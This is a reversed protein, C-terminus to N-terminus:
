VPACAEDFATVEDRGGQTLTELSDKAAPIESVNGAAVADQLVQVANAYPTTYSELASTASACDGTVTGEFGTLTEGLATSASELDDLTSGICSTLEDASTSPCDELKTTAADRATVFTDRAAEYEAWQDATLRSIDGGSTETTSSGEDDGGGCGAAALLAAVVATCAWSTKAM